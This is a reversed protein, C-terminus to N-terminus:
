YSYGGGWLRTTVSHTAVHSTSLAHSPTFPSSPSSSASSRTKSFRTWQSFIGGVEWSGKNKKKSGSLLSFCASFLKIWGKSLKGWIVMRPGLSWTEIDNTTVIKKHKETKNATWIGIKKKFAAEGRRCEQSGLSLLLPCNLIYECM